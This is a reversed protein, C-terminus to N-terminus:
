KNLIRTIFKRNMVSWYEAQCDDMEDPNEQIKKIKALPTEDVPYEAEFTEYTELDMLTVTNEGINTVQGISKKIEPVDVMAGSSFILSRKKKDFLGVCSVRNKAHGHKGSKSHQVDLVNCVEREDSLFYNGKKLNGAPIRRVSM